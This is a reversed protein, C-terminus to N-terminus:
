KPTSVVDNAARTAPRPMATPAAPAPEQGVESAAREDEHEPWELNAVVHHRALNLSGHPHNTEETGRYIGWVVNLRHDAVGLDHASGDLIEAV